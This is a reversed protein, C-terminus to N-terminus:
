TGWTSLGLAKELQLGLVRNVDSIFYTGRGYEVALNVLHQRSTIGRRYCEDFAQVINVVIFRDALNM